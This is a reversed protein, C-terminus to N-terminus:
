IKPLLKMWDLKGEYISSYMKWVIYPEDEINMIQKNLIKIEEAERIKERIEDKDIDKGFLM